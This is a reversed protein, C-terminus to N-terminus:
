ESVYPYAMELSRFLKRSSWEDQRQRLYRRNWVKEILEYVTSASDAKVYAPNALCAATQGIFEKNHGDYGLVSPSNTLFGSGDKTISIPYFDFYDSYLTYMGFNNVLSREYGKIISSIAVNNRFGVLASIDRIHEPSSEQIILFSPSIERRFQDEFGEVFTKSVSNESAIEIIRSDHRPVIAVNENEISDNLGLNPLAFVIEWM